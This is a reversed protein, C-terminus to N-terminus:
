WKFLELIKIRETIGLMKRVFVDDIEKNTVNQNILANDTAFLTTLQQFWLGYM